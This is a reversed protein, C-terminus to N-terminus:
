SVGTALTVLLRAEIRKLVEILGTSMWDALAEEDKLVFRLEIFKAVQGLV